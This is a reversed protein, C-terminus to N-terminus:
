ETLTEKYLAQVTNMQSGDIHKQVPYILGLFILLIQIKYEFPRNELLVDRKEKM